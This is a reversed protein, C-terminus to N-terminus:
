LLQVFCLREFYEDLIGETEVNQLTDKNLTFVLFNHVTHLILNLFTQSGEYAVKVM